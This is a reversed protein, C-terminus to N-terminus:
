APWRAPRRTRARPGRAQPRARAGGRRDIPGSDDPPNVLVIASYQEQPSDGVGGDGAAIFLTDKDGYTQKSGKSPEKAKGEHFFAKPDVCAPRYQGEATRVFVAGPGPLVGLLYTGDDQVSGSNYAGSAQVPAYGPVERVHPIPHLRATPSM